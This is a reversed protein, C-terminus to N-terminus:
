RRGCNHEGGSIGFNRRGLTKARTDDGIEQFRESARAHDGSGEIANAPRFLRLRAPLM